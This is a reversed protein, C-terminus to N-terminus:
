EDIEKFIRMESFRRICYDVDEKSIEKRRFLTEKIAETEQARKTGDDTVLSFLVALPVGEKGLELELLDLQEDLFDGLVDKLEGVEEVLEPDFSISEQNPRRKADKRYLRDLYVQLNTLDVGKKDSLNWIIADITTEPKVIEIEYAKATGGIVEVLSARSMKEVRLRHEFM